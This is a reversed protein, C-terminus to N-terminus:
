SELYHTKEELLNKHLILENLTEPKQQSLNKEKIKM